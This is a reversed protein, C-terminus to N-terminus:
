TFTRLLVLGFLGSVTLFGSAILSLRFLAEKVILDSMLSEQLHKEMSDSDPKRLSHATELHRLGRFAALLPIILLFVAWLALSRGFQSFLESANHDTSFAINGFVSIAFVILAALVSSKNEVKKLTGLLVEHAGASLLFDSSSCARGQQAPLKTGQQSSLEAPKRCACQGVAPKLKALSELREKLATHYDANKNLGLGYFMCLCEVIFISLLLNRFFPDPVESLRAALDLDAIATQGIRHLEECAM